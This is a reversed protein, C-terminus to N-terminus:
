PPVILDPFTPFLADVFNVWQRYNLALRCCSLFLRQIEAFGSLHCTPTM